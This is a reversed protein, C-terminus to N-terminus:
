WFIAWTRAIGISEGMRMGAKFIIVRTFADDIWIILAKGEAIARVEFGTMSGSIQTFLYGSIVRELAEVM